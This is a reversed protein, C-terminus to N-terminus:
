FDATGKANITINRTENASSTLTITGITQPIGSFKAYVIESTGSPAISGALEFVEDRASNRAAYSIGQFLTVSGSGIHIGWSADGDVAQSLLQARRLSQAITNAAVALDNRAQFSQYVPTGIGVILSILAVSLLVELLTFGNHSRRPLM